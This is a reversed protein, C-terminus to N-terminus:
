CNLMSACSGVAFTCSRIPIPLRHVTHEDLTGLRASDPVPTIYDLRPWMSRRSHGDFMQVIETCVFEFATAQIYRSVLVRAAGKWILGSPLYLCGYPKPIQNMCDQELFSLEGNFVLLWDM